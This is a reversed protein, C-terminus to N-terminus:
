KIKNYNYIETATNGHADTVQYTIWVIGLTNTATVKVNKSIDGDLNDIAIGKPIAVTANGGFTKKYTVDVTERNSLTIKPASKDEVEITRNVTSVNGSWDAVTYTITYTGVKTTDVYGTIKIKSTLDTVGLEGDIIDYAEAGYETYTDNNVDLSVISYLPKNLAIIPPISEIVKVTRTAVSTNEAEDTVMYTITYEGVKRANISDIGDVKIKLNGYNTYNDSIDVGPDVDSFKTFLSRNIILPNAGKLTITPKNKDINNVTAVVSDKNGARDVFEFTFAGNSTFLYSLSGENNTITVDESQNVLTAVVNGNTLETVDYSIEATPNTSDVIFHRTVTNSMNGAKDYTNAKIYYEGDLLNLNSFDYEYIANTGDVVGFTSKAIKGDKNYLNAVVKSLKRDDTSNVKVKVDTNKLFQGEEPFEVITQPKNKDINNVTAVVSGKNGARDVFEFTFAGNSTFLYSLSGENNTITVDESQNVLTAVVNGNTLETVDYSIEATPNTKDVIIKGIYSSYEKQNFIMNESSNGILDSVKIAFEVQGEQTTNGVNISYVYEYQDEIIKTSELNANEGAITVLSNDEDIKENTRFRVAVRDGLKNYEFTKGKNSIYTVNVIPAEKDINNVTAVVSGKNGARDVFEFTFAGNSTFLYSLSGENNTITVDESPNILTAVVNGNTLEIVDYSVEATPTITDVINVIRYESVENGSSDKVYYTIKYSGLTNIDVNGSIVVNDTLNGDVNDSATAGLEEYSNGVEINISNSGNLTIEPCELDIYFAKSKVISTNQLSDKALVWLYYIGNNNPTSIVDGNTFTNNFAGESPTDDTTVWLYKLNNKDLVGNDTVSLVTKASQEYSDNGNTEFVITPKTTDVVNVTRTSSSTNGSKDAVTYIVTYTGTTNSNVNTAVAIKSTLDGDQDDIATAGEETYSSGLEITVNSNGNITIVPNTEDMVMKELNNQNNTNDEPTDTNQSENILDKESTGNTAFAFIVWFVLIAAVSVVIIKKNLM